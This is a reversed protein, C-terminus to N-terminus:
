KKFEDKLGNVVTEIQEHTISQFLPLALGHNFLLSANPFVQQCSCSSYVPQEHLAYTGINTQIQKQLLNTIIGNRNLKEDLLIMYTQYTHLNYPEAYPPMIESTKSLLETYYAACERRKAIFDQIRNLQKLLIAASIDSLKYNYGLDKFVPIQFKAQRDYASKIGFCSFSEIKDAYEKNNTAVIGGEGSTISKRAHFSFCAIDSFTGAFRNKYKSGLACAADEVVLLGNAKAIENIEDMEACQGFVHVPMIAKTKPTIKSKIAAPSLNYTKPNVDAFVPKAGTYLVAHATAPYTFDPVIVEGGPGINLALMALHLAATCNAVPIVYQVGLFEAIKKALEKNKPGQGAVWGSEFTSEVADLEEKGFFPKSLPIMNYM